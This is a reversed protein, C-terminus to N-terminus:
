RGNHWAAFRGLDDTEDASIWALATGAPLAAIQRTLAVTKGFGAPAVVLVLRQQALASALPASVRDRALLGLRQRPPQIKTRAFVAAAM